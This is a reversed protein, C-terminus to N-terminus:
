LWRLHEVNESYVLSLMARPNLVGKKTYYSERALSHIVKRQMVRCLNSKSHNGLPISIDEGM